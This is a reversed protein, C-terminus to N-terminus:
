RMLRALCRQGAFAHQASEVVGQQEATKIPASRMTPRKASLGQRM